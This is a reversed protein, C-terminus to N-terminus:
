GINAVLVLFQVPPGIGQCYNYRFAVKLQEWRLFIFIGLVIDATTQISSHLQQETHFWLCLVIDATTQVVISSHLQQKTHFWLCFFLMGIYSALYTLRGGQIIIKLSYARGECQMAKM